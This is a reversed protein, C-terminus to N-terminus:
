FNKDWLTEFRVFLASAPQLFIRKLLMQEKIINSEFHIFKDGCFDPDFVPLSLLFDTRKKQFLVGNGIKKDSRARSAIKM